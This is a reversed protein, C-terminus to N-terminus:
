QETIAEPTRIRRHLQPLAPSPSSTQPDDRGPLSVPSQLDDGVARLSKPLLLSLAPTPISPLSPLHSQLIHRYASHVPKELSDCEGLSGMKQPWICLHLSSAVSAVLYSFLSSEVERPGPTRWTKVEPLCTGGSDLSYDVIQLRYHSRM